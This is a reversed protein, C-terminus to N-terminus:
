AIFSLYALNMLSRSITDCRLTPTWSLIDEVKFIHAKLIHHGLEMTQQRNLKGEQRSLMFAMLAHGSRHSLNACHALDFLVRDYYDDGGVHACASTDMVVIMKSRREGDEAKIRVSYIFVAININTM